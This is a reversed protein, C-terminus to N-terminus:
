SKRRRKSSSTIDHLRCKCWLKAIQGRKLHKCGCRVRGVSQTDLFTFIWALTEVPQKALNLPELAELAGEQWYALNNELGQIPCLFIVGEYSLDQFKCYCDMWNEPDVFNVIAFQGDGDQRKPPMYFFNYSLRCGDLQLRFSESTHHEPIDCIVATTLPVDADGQLPMDAVAKPLVFRPADGASQESTPWPGDCEASVEMPEDGLVDELPRPPRELALAEREAQSSVESDEECLDDDQLIDCAAKESEPELLGVLERLATHLKLCKKVLGETSIEAVQSWDLMHLEELTMM